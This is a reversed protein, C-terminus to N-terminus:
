HIHVYKYCPSCKSSLVHSKIQALKSPLKQQQSTLTLLLTELLALSALSNATTTARREQLNPGLGQNVNLASLKCTVDYVCSDWRAPLYIKAVNNELFADHLLIYIIKTVKVYENRLVFLTCHLAKYMCPMHCTKM